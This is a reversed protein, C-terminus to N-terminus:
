WKDIGSRLRSEAAILFVASTVITEGESLGDRVEILDNTRIGTQIIRPEIRGEGLDVFAVHSKGAYVVASEPVVLREGMPIQFRVNTYMEPKLVGDPNPVDIRVRATRTGENLYPYIYSITGELVSDPSYSLTIETTQGVAIMSLENEYIEAEVWLSSLDAIRYLTQGADVASGEFVNKEMITGTAPAYFPLYEVPKGSSRISAITADSLGWLRLRTEVVEVIRNNRSSSEQSRRYTEIYEEQTSWLEPSYFTFLREGKTVPKGTFDGDVEGIWAKIKLTVETVRTEDALITGVTRIEKTVSERRVTGTKVGILQRRQADVLIVGTEIETKTIPTLDMACIPCQGPLDSRVSPHMACTWYAIDDDEGEVESAGLPLISIGPEGTALLLQFDAHRLDVTRVDGTLTSQGENSLAFEASYSGPSGERLEVIEGTNVRVSAGELAAGSEDRLEIHLSNEGVRPIRPEWEVQITFPGVVREDVSSSTSRAGMYREVIPEVMPSFWQGIEVRFLLAVLAVIAIVVLAPSWSALTKLPKRM